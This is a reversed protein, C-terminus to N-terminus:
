KIVKDARALVSPPITLGIQKATKLNIWLEFKRPQEIPLDAPKAGKFIKDVFTAARRHSEQISTAYSMLGGEAVFLENFYIAPLKNNTAFEIIRKRHANLFASTNAFLSDTKEERSLEFARDFNEDRTVELSFSSFGFQQAANRIEPFGVIGDKSWLVALRRLKPFAERFVELRKSDLESGMSSIGTVNGGPRALSGGLGKELLGSSTAVVIPITKTANKAALPAQTGVTLIVEVNLRVLDAALDAVRETRGDAYRYEIFIDQNEIYGLQRLGDLLAARLPASSSASGVTLYGIRHVKKAPQAEAPLCFVVLMACLAAVAQSIWL